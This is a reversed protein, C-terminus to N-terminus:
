NGGDDLPKLTWGTPGAALNVNLALKLRQLQEAGAGDLAIAGSFPRNAISPAVTIGVGLSRGLDAAVQSLPEGSYVLLGRQWAGVSTIPTTTARLTGSDSGAVLAQGAGLPVVQKPTNYVVKGEAVAIRVQSPDRVVNFVTGVDRIRDNGVELTFPRNNDHHVRFLAEGSTLQAFRADKRDFTMRTSGNLIVQTTTDLVVTQRQGPGTVVDYRNSGPQPLLAVVVAVSAALASGALWWRRSRYTPAEM